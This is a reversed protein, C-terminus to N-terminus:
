GKEVAAAFARAEDPAAGLGGERAIALDPFEHALLEALTGEGAKARLEKQAYQLANGAQLKMERVPGRCMEIEWKVPNAKGSAVPAAHAHSKDKPVAVYGAFDAFLTGVLRRKLASGDIASTLPGPQGLQRLWARGIANGADATPDDVSGLQQWRCGLRQAALRSLGCATASVHAARWDIEHDLFGQAISCEAGSDLYRQLRQSADTYAAELRVSAGRAEDAILAQSKSFIGIGIQLATLVLNVAVSVWTCIPLACTQVGTM